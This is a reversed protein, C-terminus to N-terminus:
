AGAMLQIYRFIDAPLFTRDESVSVSARPHHVGGERTIGTDLRELDKRWGKWGGGEFWRWAYELKPM